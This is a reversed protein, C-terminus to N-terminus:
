LTYWRNLLMAVGAIKHEHRPAMSHLVASIHRLALRRDVGPKPEPMKGGESFLRSALRAAPHHWNKFAVPIEDWAPLYGTTSNLGLSADMGDVPKPGLPDVHQTPAIGLAARRAARNRKKNNKSM